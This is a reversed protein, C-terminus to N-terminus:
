IAHFFNKLNQMPGAYRDFFRQFAFATDHCNFFENLMSEMENILLYDEGVIHVAIHGVPLLRSPKDCACLCFNFPM